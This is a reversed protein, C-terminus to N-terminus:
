NLAVKVGHSFASGHLEIVTPKASKPLDYVITGRVSNGPNISTFLSKADPLFVVSGSDAEYEVDGALLKQSSGAFYAAKDGTNKVTVNVLWFAGQPNAGLYQTGIRKPGPGYKTVKFSLGGDTVTDGITPMTAAAKKVPAKKTKSPEANAASRAASPTESTGAVLAILLLFVVGVVVVGLCGFLVIPARSRRQPPPAYHVYPPQPPYMHSGPPYPTVPSHRM